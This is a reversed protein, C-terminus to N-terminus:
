LYLTFTVVSCQLLLGRGLSMSSQFRKLGFQVVFQTGLDTCPSALLSPLNAANILWRAVVQSTTRCNTASLVDAGRAWNITRGLPVLDLVREWGCEYGWKGKRGWCAASPGSINMKFKDQNSIANKLSHKCTWCQGPLWLSCQCTGRKSPCPLPLSGSSPCIATSGTPTDGHM